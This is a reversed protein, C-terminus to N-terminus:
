MLAIVQKATQAAIRGFDFSPTTSSGWWRNKKDKNVQNLKIADELTIELKFKRTKWSNIIKFIGIDGNDRDIEVKIENNMWIESKAAKAIGTEM